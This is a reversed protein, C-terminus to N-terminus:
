PDARGVDQADRSGNALRHDNRHSATINGFERQIWEVLGLGNGGVNDGGATAIRCMSCNLILRQERRAEGQEHHREREVYKTIEKAPAIVLSVLRRKNVIGSMAFIM